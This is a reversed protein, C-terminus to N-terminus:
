AEDGLENVDFSFATVRAHTGYSVFLTPMRDGPWTEFQLSPIVAPDWEIRGGIQPNTDGSDDAPLKLVRLRSGTRVSYLAITGPVDDHAAAVVGTAADYAFGIDIRALNRYQEFKIVPQAVSEYRLKKRTKNRRRFMLHRDADSYNYGARAADDVKFSNDDNDGGQHSRAFRLDYVGLRNELGAVLVQNGGDLCRLHTITSPLKLYSWGTFPVRTDATILTGPRGGFRFIEGHNPCFDIAFM